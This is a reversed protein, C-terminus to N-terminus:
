YGFVLRDHIEVALKEALDQLAVEKYSDLVVPGTEINYDETYSIGSVEWVVAGNKVLKAGVRVSVTILVARDEEDYVRNFYDVSEITGILEADANEKVPKLAGSKMFQGTLANTMIVGLRPEDTPNIFSPIYVTKIDPPLQKKVNVFTYGCGYLSFITVLVIGITSLRSLRKIVNMVYGRVTTFRRNM